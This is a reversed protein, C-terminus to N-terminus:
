RRKGKKGKKDKVTVTVPNSLSAGTPGTVTALFTVAGKGSALWVLSPASGPANGLSQGAEWTCSAGRCLRFEVSVDSLAANSVAATLTVAQKGKVKTASATLVLSPATTAPPVPNPPAPPDPPSTPRNIWIGEDIWNGANDYADATLYNLGRRLSSVNISSTYPATDDESILNWEEERPDFWWFEVFAIGSADVANVALPISGGSAVHTGGNPVPATWSVVPPVLDAGPPIDQTLFWNDATNWHTDLYSNPPPSPHFYDDNGCDFRDEFTNEPLCVQNMRPRFPEDSYCMVDYEDICHGGLSSNPASDQVAGLNHMLEHAATHGDWCAFDARAFSPGRNNFNFPVDRDDPWQTGIGCIGAASTDAFILYIRDTRDFGLNELEEITTDFSRMAAPSLPVNRVDIECAGNQVFHFQVAEEAGAALSSARLIADAAAAHARISDLYDAFRNTQTTSVTYLVQVRFGSTGDGDCAIAATARRAAAVTLPARNADVTAGPPPADPGHTCRGSKPLQIMGPGCPDNTESLAPLKPPATELQAEIEAQQSETDRAREEQHSKRAKRKKHKNKQQHDNRASKKGKDNKQQKHKHKHKNKNRTPTSKRDSRPKKAKTLSALGADTSPAVSAARAPPSGGPSVNATSSPMLGPPLALLVALTFLILRSWIM